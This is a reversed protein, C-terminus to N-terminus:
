VLIEALRAFDEASPVWAAAAANARIQEPKTAGTIVASVAPNAAIAGIAVDLLSIGRESAFASLAEIRDYTAADINQGALRTGAPAPRDRRYKGTLLGNALPFYPLLGVGFRVCAPILEAEAARALLSYHNQAAVFRQKGLSRATWDADAVQWGTFHSSGFYRIKGSHVLGDLADITEAIPTRRDPWHMQYLDIYDTQLRRLSADVAQHIYRRSGWAIDHRDEMGSGWKTAIVAQHRRDKLIEGLYTESGGRGYVDATDFLTIGADFAANVVARTQDLDLLGYVTGTAANVPAGGFNNCGLSVVSVTLGSDGLQRYQM